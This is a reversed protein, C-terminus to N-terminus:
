LLFIIYIELHYKSKSDMKNIEVKLIAKNLNFPSSEGRSQLDYEKLDWVLCLGDEGLTALLTTEGSENSALHGKHFHFNKPFWHM